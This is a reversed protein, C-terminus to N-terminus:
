SRKKTGKTLTELNAVEPHAGRTQLVVEGPGTVELVLANGALASRVVGDCSLPMYRSSISAPFALIHGVELLYREGEILNLRHQWGACSLLVLGTGEVRTMMQRRTAVLGKVGALLPSFTLGPSVALISGFQVAYAEDQLDLVMIDGAQHPALLLEGPQEDCSYLAVSVTGGTVMRKLTDLLGGPLGATVSINSSMAMLSGARGAIKQGPQLQFRAVSTSPSYLIELKYSLSPKM